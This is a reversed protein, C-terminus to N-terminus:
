LREGIRRGEFIAMEITRPAVCDGIRYREAVRGKIQHYLGDQPAYAADVVITDHDAYTVAERTYVNHAQVAGDQIADVVVDTTFTVGKQLLRQRTLYLDGSSALEIGVFLDSTILDVQRDQDALLEATAAGRHGGNEDIFLVKQGLSAEQGLVQIVNLVQPPATTAPFRNQLRDPVRQWSSPM